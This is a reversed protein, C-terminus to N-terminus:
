LAEMEDHPLITVGGSTKPAFFVACTLRLCKLTRACRRSWVVVM